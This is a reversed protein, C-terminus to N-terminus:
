AVEGQAQIKFSICTMDDKQPEDGRYQSLTELIINKQEHKSKIHIDQLLQRLRKRGFMMRKPQGGVQETIGDTAMYFSNEKDMPIVHEQFLHDAPTDKYGIGRREGKIEKIEENRTYFLPIGAGAFRVLNEKTNVHCIGADLGDDGLGEGERNLMNKLTRNLISLIESPSTIDNEKIIRNLIPVALMTMLSGPVGHGTCDILAVIFGDEVEETWYFDGGVVDRQNWIVFHEGLTAQMKSKDPLFSHQIKSAYNISDMVIMNAHELEKLSARIEQTQEKVKQDLIENTRKQQEILGEISAAMGNFSHALHCLEDQCEHTLDPIRYGFRNESFAQTGGVLLNIRRTISRMFLLGGVIFLLMSLMGFAILTNKRQDMNNQFKEIAVNLQRHSIEILRSLEENMKGAIAVMGEIAMFAEESDEKIVDMDIEMGNAVLMSYRLVLKKTLDKLEPSESQKAYQKLETLDQLMNPLLSEVAESSTEMDMITDVVQQVQLNQIKSLKTKVKDAIIIFRFQYDQMHQFNEHTKLTQYHNIAIVMASYIIVGVLMMTIRQKISLKKLGPFM